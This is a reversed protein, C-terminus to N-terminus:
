STAVVQGSWVDSFYIALESRIGTSKVWASFEGNTAANGAHNDLPTTPYSCDPMPPNDSKLLRQPDTCAVM